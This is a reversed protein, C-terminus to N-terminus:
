NILVMAGNVVVRADSLVETKAVSKITINPSSIEISAPLMRIVSEGVTMVIEKSATIDLKGNFIDLKDDGERLETVRSFEGKSFQGLITRTEKNQVEIEHDREARLGLVEKGSADEFRVENYTGSLGGGETSESKLGSQTKAGPLAYPPMHRDNVVTGTVLPWDPNGELFDVVVEQGIRPIIQGGWNKGSWLQAVRVRASTSKDERDWHFRLLIRGYEDVDIDGEEGKNDIGVVKATQCGMILPAPATQPARFRKESKLFEYQGEYVTEDKGAASRYRQGTLRHWAWLVLHEVNETQTPHDALSMLAGPFLSPAEGRSFRREDRAQDAQVSIRALNEGDGRELYDGPYDYREYTKARDPGDEVRSTLDADSKKFDYDRLQVVGTRLRREASWDELHEIPRPAGTKPLFPFDKGGQAHAEVSPTVPDHASRSDCLVLKHGSETHRFYYYIGYKEMLRSVFDLDTERYQVCYELEPPTETLGDHFDNKSEKEFIKKIIEVATMKKFIRCDARRSLLWLWPRLTFKYIHLDDQKGVWEARVLIGNFFRKKGDKLALSIVCREGIIAQLNANETKSAARVRYSFLESLGEEAEFSLLAFDHQGCPAQFSAIRQSQLLEDAM